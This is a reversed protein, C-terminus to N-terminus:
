VAYANAYPLEQTEFAAQSTVVATVSMSPSSGGLVYRAGLYRLTPTRKPIGLWGRAGATREESGIVRSVLVTPSSLDASASTLLEFQYTGGASGAVDIVFGVGVGEGPGVARQDVLGSGRLDVVNSSLVTGATLAQADSLLLHADLYM